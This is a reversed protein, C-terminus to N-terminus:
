NREGNRPKVIITGRMVPNFDNFFEYQGASLPGVFVTVAHNVPVIIERSLDYSEFEAPLADENAITLKVKVGSPLVLQEPVFQQNRIAISQTPEAALAMGPTMVAIFLLAIALTRGLM